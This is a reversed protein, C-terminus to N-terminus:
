TSEFGCPVFSFARSLWKAVLSKGTVGSPNLGLVKLVPITGSDLGIGMM